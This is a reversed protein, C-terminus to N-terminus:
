SSASTYDILNIHLSSWTGVPPPSLVSSTIFSIPSLTHGGKVTSQNSTLCAPIVVSHGSAGHGSAPYLLTISWSLNRLALQYLPPPLAVSQAIMILAVKVSAAPASLAQCIALSRKTKRLIRGASQTLSHHRSPHLSLIIHSSWPALPLLLLM